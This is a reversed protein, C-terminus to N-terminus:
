GSLGNAAASAPYNPKVMKIARNVAYGINVPASESSASQTGINPRPQSIPPSIVLTEASDGKSMFIIESVVGQADATTCDVDITKITNRYGRRSLTLRYQGSRIGVFRPQKNISTSNVTKNSEPDLFNAEAGSIPMEKSDSSEPKEIVQFRLECTKEQSYTDIVSLLVLFSLTLLTMKPKTM